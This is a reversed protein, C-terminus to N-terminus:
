NQKLWVPGKVLQIAVGRYHGAWLPVKMPRADRERRLQHFEDVSIKLRRVRIGCRRAHRLAGDLAAQVPGVDSLMSARCDPPDPDNVDWALGCECLMQDGHQRARCTM